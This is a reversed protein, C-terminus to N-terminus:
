QNAGQTTSSNSASGNFLTSNPLQTFSRTSIYNQPVSLSVSQGADFLVPNYKLELDYSAGSPDRGFNALVVSTFATQSTKSDSTKYVTFKLTDAFENVAALSNATGLISITHTDFNVSFQSISAQTPTIQPLYTFLRTVAPDQKHLTVLTTLQSQLTLVDGLSPIQNLQSEYKAIDADASSLAHKQLGVTGLTIVMIGVAILAVVVAVVLVTRESRRAQINQLKSQPLLNLQIM